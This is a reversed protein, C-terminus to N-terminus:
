GTEECQALLAEQRECSIYGLDLSLELIVHTEDLSSRAIDLLRRGDRLNTRAVGEAINLVVSYAARRLQNALGFQECPPFDAAARACGVAMVKSHQFAKLTQHQGPMSRLRNHPMRHRM